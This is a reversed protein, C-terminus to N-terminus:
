ECSWVYNKFRTPIAQMNANRSDSCTDDFDIAMDPVQSYLCRGLAGRNVGYQRVRQGGVVAGIMDDIAAEKGAADLRMWERCGIASAPRAGVVVFGVAIGAAVQLLIRRRRM